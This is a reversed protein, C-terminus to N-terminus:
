SLCIPVFLIENILILKQETRSTLTFEERVCVSKVYEIQM